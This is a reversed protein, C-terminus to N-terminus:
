SPVLEAATRVRAIAYIIDGAADPFPTALAIHECESSWALCRPYRAMCNLKTTLVFSLATRRQCPKREVNDSPERVSEKVRNMAVDICVIYRLSQPELLANFLVVVETKFMNRRCSGPFARNPDNSTEAFHRDSRIDRYRNLDAPM